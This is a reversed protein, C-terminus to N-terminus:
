REKRDRSKIFRKDVGDEQEKAFILMSSGFRNERNKKIGMKNGKRRREVALNQLNDVGDAEL